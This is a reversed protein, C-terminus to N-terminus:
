TECTAIAGSSPPRILSPSTTSGSASLAARRDINASCLSELDTRSPTALWRTATLVKRRGSISSGLLQLGGDAELGLLVQRHREVLRHKVVPDDGPVATLVSGTAHLDYRDGGPAVHQPRQEGRDAVGAQLRHSDIEGGERQDPSQSALRIFRFGVDVLRRLALVNRRDEVAVEAVDGIKGHRPEFQRNVRLEGNPTSSIAWFSASRRM